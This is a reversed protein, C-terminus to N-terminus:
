LTIGNAVGDSKAPSPKKQAEEQKERLGEEIEPERKATNVPKADGVISTGSKEMEKEEMEKEKKRWLTEEVERRELERKLLENENTLDEARKMGAEYKQRMTELELAHQKSEATVNELRVTTHSMEMRNSEPEQGATGSGEAMTKGRDGPKVEAAKDM